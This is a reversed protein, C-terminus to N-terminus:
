QGNLFNLYRSFQCLRSIIIKLHLVQGPGVRNQLGLHRSVPHTRAPFPCPCGPGGSARSVVVVVWVGKKVDVRIMHLGDGTQLIVRKVKKRTKHFFSFSHIFLTKHTKFKENGDTSVHRPCSSLYKKAFLLFKLLKSLRIWLVYLLSVM